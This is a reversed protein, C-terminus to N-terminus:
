LSWRVVVRLKSSTIGSSVPVMDCSGEVYSTSPLM